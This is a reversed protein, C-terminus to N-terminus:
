NNLNTSNDVFKICCVLAFRAVFLQWVGSENM